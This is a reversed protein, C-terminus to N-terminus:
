QSLLKDIDVRRFFSIHKLEEWYHGICDHSILILQSPIFKDPFPLITLSQNAL